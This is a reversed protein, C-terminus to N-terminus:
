HISNPVPGQYDCCEPMSLGCMWIHNAEKKLSIVIPSVWDNTEVKFIIGAELMKEIEENVKAVYNKNM